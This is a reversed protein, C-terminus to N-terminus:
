VLLCKSLQTRYHRPDRPRAAITSRAERRKECVEAEAKEFKLATREPCVLVGKARSARNGPSQACGKPSASGQAKYGTTPYACKPLM